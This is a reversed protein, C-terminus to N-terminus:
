SNVFASRDSVGVRTRTTTDPAGTVDVSTDLCVLLIGHGHVLVREPLNLCSRM